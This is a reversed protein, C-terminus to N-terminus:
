IFYLPAIILPLTGECSQNELRGSFWCLAGERTKLVVPSAAKLTRFESRDIIKRSSGLCARREAFTPEIGHLIQLVVNTWPPTKLYHECCLQLKHQYFSMSYGVQNKSAKNSFTRLMFNSVVIILLLSLM